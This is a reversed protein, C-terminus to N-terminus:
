TVPPKYSYIAIQGSQYIQSFNGSVYPQGYWGSGNVWWILLLSHSSNQAVQKQAAGEPNGFNYYVLKDAPFTQLAWGYFAQHVLLRSSNMNSQVWQLANVTNQCDRLPLTNQLMTTPVYNPYINFYPFANASPLAVFGVSLVVLVVGFVTKYTRHRIACFGETAYFALPFTLLLIWRYPYVALFANPSAFTVILVLFVWFVWAKLPFSNRLRGVGKVIFPLLPLFCFALFGLTNVVLDQYSAFGLLAADGGISQNPFGKLLSRQIAVNAYIIILTLLVAPLSWVILRRLQLMNKQVAFKLLVAFAIFLMVAAVIPNALVVMFLAASFLVGIKNKSVLILAAFLFILALEVRLMDWSTRLAVFYLTAFCVALLSKRSSWMLTKNAYVFIILGLAGLLLPALMKFVFIIPAGVSVTGMLLIYILPGDSMFTWFSVGQRLWLFTNPLYYGVTDFGTAFSGMLLEPIVRVVLPVLFALAAFFFIKQSRFPNKL